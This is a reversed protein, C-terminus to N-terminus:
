ESNAAPLAIQVLRRQSNAAFALLYVPLVPFLCAAGKGQKGATLGGSGRAMQTATVLAKNSTDSGDVSVLIREFM